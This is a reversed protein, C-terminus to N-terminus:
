PLMLLRQGVEEPTFHICRAIRKAQQEETEENEPLEAGLAALIDTLFDGMGHGTLEMINHSIAYDLHHLYLHTELALSSRICKDLGRYDEVQKLEYIAPACCKEEFFLYQAEETGSLIDAKSTKGLRQVDESLDCNWIPYAVALVWQCKDTELFYVGEAVKKTRVTLGYPTHRPPLLGGFYEPYNEAAYIATCYLSSHRDELSIGSKVFHRSIEYRVLEYGSGPVDYEFLCVKGDKKGYQLTEESIVGDAEDPVVAYMERGIHSRDNPRTGLYYVGPCEMEMHQIEGWIESNLQYPFDVESGNFEKQEM